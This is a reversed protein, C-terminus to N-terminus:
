AGATKRYSRLSRRPGSRDVDGIQPPEGEFTDIEAKLFRSEKSCADCRLTFVQSQGQMEAPTSDSEVAFLDVLNDSLPIPESCHSCRVAQYSKESMESTMPMERELFPYRPVPAMLCVGPLVPNDVLETFLRGDFSRISFPRFYTRM